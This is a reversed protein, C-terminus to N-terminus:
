FYPDNSPMDKALERLVKMTNECSEYVDVSIRETLGPNKDTDLFIEIYATQNENDHFAHNQAMHGAECDAKVADLLVAINQNSISLGWKDEKWLNVNASFIHEALNEPENTGLVVRWDSMYDGIAKGVETGSNATYQRYLHSGNKLEYSINVTFGSGDPGYM